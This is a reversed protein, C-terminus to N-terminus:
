ACSPRAQRTVPPMSACRFETRILSDTTDARLGCCLRYPSEPPLACDEVRANGLEASLFITEPHVAVALSFDSVSACALPRATFGEYALDLQLRQVTLNLKFVTRAEGGSRAPTADTAGPLGAAAVGSTLRPTAIVGASDVSKGTGGVGDAEVDSADPVQKGAPPYLDQAFCMLAAVTPRNCSFFLSAVAVSLAADTSDYVPSTAADWYNVGISVLADRPDAVAAEQTGCM